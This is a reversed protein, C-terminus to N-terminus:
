LLKKGNDGPLIEDPADITEEVQDASIKRQVMRQQAHHTYAIRM